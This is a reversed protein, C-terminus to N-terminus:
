LSLAYDDEVPPWEVNFLGLQGKYPVPDCPKPNALVWGFPGTFWPSDSETVCDIIEVSGIIAGFDMVNSPPLRDGYERIFPAAASVDWVKGAQILIRGRYHTRRTRNEVDKFVREFVQGPRFPVFGHVILHAWPPRISLAKMTTM